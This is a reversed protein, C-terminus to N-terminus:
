PFLPYEFAGDLVARQSLWERRKVPRSQAVDKGNADMPAPTPLWLIILLVALSLLGFIMRLKQSKLKVM